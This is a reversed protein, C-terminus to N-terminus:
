RTLADLRQRKSTADRHLISLQISRSQEDLTSTKLRGITRRLERKQARDATSEERLTNKM